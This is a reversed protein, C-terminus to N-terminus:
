SRPGKKDMEFIGKLEEPYVKRTFDYYVIFENVADKKFGVSLKKLWKEMEPGALPYLASNVAYFSDNSNRVESTYQLRRDSFTPHFLTPSVLIKEKSYFVTEYATEYDSYGYRMENAELWKTLQPYHYTKYNSVRNGVDYVNFLLVALIIAIYFFRSRAKIRSLLAGALFPFAVYAPLMYRNTNEGVLLIYFVASWFVSIVSIGVLGIKRDKVYEAFAKKTLVALSLFLLATNLLGMLGCLLVPIRMLFVPLDALRCLMRDALIWKLNPLGLVTRDLNLIRGAFRFFAAGPYQINYIIAPLLGAIFSVVFIVIARSTFIKKDKLLFVTLTTLVFPTVAPSLWLGIGSSIGLLAFIGPDNRTEKSYKALFLLILAGFLVTEAYVGGVYLSLYLVTYPPLVVFLAAPIYGSSDLDKKSVMITLLVWVSSFLVGAMSYVIMSMGFIRFLVAALYSVLSGGYHCLWLYIPFEKLESIQKAMLAFVTSDGTITNMRLVFAIRIIIASMMLLALFLIGTRKTKMDKGYRDFFTFVSRNGRRTYYKEPMGDRLM